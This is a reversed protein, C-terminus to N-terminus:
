QVSVVPVRMTFSANNGISTAVSIVLPTPLSGLGTYNGLTANTVSSLASVDAHAFQMMDALIMGNPAMRVGVNNAVATAASEITANVISDVTSVARVMAKQLSGDLVLSGLFAAVSLNTNGTSALAPGQGEGAGGGAAFQGIHLQLTSDSDVGLNNAVATTASTVSGLETAADLSESAPVTIEGIGISGVVTGNIGFEGFDSEDVTAFIVQPHKFDDDIVEGPAGGNGLGYHFQFDVLGGDVTGGSSAQSNTIDFVTSTATVDGFHAQMSEVMTMDTPAIDIDITVNKTITELITADWSWNVRDFALAPSAVALSLALASAGALLGSKPVSSMKSSRSRNFADEARM